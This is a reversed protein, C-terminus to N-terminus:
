STLPFKTPLSAPLTLRSSDRWRPSSNSTLIPASLKTCFSLPDWVTQWKINCNARLTEYLARLPRTWVGSHCVTHSGSLKQVVKLQGLFRVNSGLSALLFMAWPADGSAPHIFGLGTRQIPLAHHYQHPHIEVNFGRTRAM